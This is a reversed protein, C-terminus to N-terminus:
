QPQYYLIVNGCAVPRTRLLKLEFRESANAFYPKGSGLVVPAVIMRYEDVLGRERLSAAISSGTVFLDGDGPEAKLANVEAALDGHALRANWRPAETLTRSFVVKPFRNIREAFDGSQALWFESLAEYTTRGYLLYGASAFLEDVYEQMGDGFNHWNWDKIGGPGEIFGDLSVMMSVIVRRM